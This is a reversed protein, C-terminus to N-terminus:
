AGSEFAVGFADVDSRGTGRGDQPAVDGDFEGDFESDTDQGVANQGAFHKILV